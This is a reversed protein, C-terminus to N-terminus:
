KLSLAEFSLVFNALLDIKQISCNRGKTLVFQLKSAIFRSFEMQDVRKSTVAVTM